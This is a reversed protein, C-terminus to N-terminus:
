DSAAAPLGKQVLLRQASCISMPCRLKSYCNECASHSAAFRKDDVAEYLDLFAPIVAALLAPPWVLRGAPILFVFHFRLVALALPSNRM